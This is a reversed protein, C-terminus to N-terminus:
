SFSANTPLRSEEAFAAAPSPQARIALTPCQRKPYGALKECVESSSAGASPRQRIARSANPMCVQRSGSPAQGRKAHRPNGLM